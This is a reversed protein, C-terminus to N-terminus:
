SGSLQRGRPRPRGANAARDLGLRRLQGDLYPRARRQGGRAAIADRLRLLSREITARDPEHGRAECAELWAVPSVHGRARNCSRCAAVENEPWAPGGKLKPVVHELSADRHGAFLPRRCWVCAEGDRALAHRLREARPLHLADADVPGASAHSRDDTV